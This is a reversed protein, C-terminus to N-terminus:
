YGPPNYRISQAIQDLDNYLSPSSTSIFYIAHDIYFYYGKHNLKSNTPYESIIKLVKIGNIIVYQKDVIKDKFTNRYDVEALYGELSTNNTGNRSVRIEEKDQEKKLTVTGLRETVQFEAPYTIEIKLFDSYYTRTVPTPYSTYLTKSQQLTSVSSTSSVKRRIPKSIVVILIAIFLLGIFLLIYHHFIQKKKNMNNERIMCYLLKVQVLLQIGQM